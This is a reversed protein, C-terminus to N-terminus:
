YVNIERGLGYSASDMENANESDTADAEQAGSQVNRGLSLGHKEVKEMAASQQDAFAKLGSFAPTDGAAAYADEGLIQEFDAM